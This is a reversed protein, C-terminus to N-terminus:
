AHDDSPRALEAAIADLTPYDWLLTAPLKRGLWEELDGVLSVAQISALGYDTLPASPDLSEAGNTPAGNNAM